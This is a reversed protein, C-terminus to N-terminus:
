TTLVGLPIVNIGDKRQYAFGNATIICLAAPPGIRSQDVRQAFTLLNAAATEQARMGMKVEFAAWRGDPYEIVADVELGSSDRYHFVNGGHLEAYIRLDRIVLSEFLFGLYQLDKGLKEISLGLAGVALSPDVFFRKPSKRLTSSGRIHTSWAPLQELIRLRELAQIYDAATEDTLFGDSGNVDKVLTALSAETAINRALSQLLRRVKMPDRTKGSAKNIDAEATLSIYDRSFQLGTVADADILGPWGGLVIQEILTELRFPLERSRPIDGQMVSEMSVEGTSWGREALSMPRMDVISFRGAGSHLRAANHVSSSGTLIFQGKQKREDVEHRVFNWIEPYEQWEDIVRPTDGALVMRPDLEMQLRVIDDTDMRAISGAAQLATETKGCGKAGRILVAGSVTLRNQLITDTVRPMYM